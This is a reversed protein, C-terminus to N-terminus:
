SVFRFPFFAVNCFSVSHFPVSSYQQRFISIFSLAIVTQHYLVIRYQLSKKVGVTPRFNFPNSLDGSKPIPVIHSSKWCVPFTGTELALNILRTIHPAIKSATEKLMRSSIGDPGNSKSIDLSKLSHELEDVTYLTNEIDHDNPM